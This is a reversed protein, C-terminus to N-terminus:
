LKVCLIIVSQTINRRYPLCHFPQIRGVMENDVLVSTAGDIPVGFMHLKYRLAKILETAVRLAVFESGFTSTEVTKQSKSYWVTPSRNLYILIGTHSHRNLKDGNHNADVLVNM